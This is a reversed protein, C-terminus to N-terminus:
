GTLTYQLQVARRPAGSYNCRGRHWLHGDFLLAAGALGSVQIEDPHAAGPQQQSKPLPQTWRHSRPIVGTAGNNPGFADLFLLCTLVHPPDHAGRPLGDQHLGQLGQGQGPARQGWTILRKSGSGLYGTLVQALELPEPAQQPFESLTHFSPVVVYGLERLRTLLEAEM